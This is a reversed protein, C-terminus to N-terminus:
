EPKRGKAMLGGGGPTTIPLRTALLEYIRHEHRGQTGYQLRFMVHVCESLGGSRAAEREERGHHAASDRVFAAM